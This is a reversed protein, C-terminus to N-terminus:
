RWISNRGQTIIGSFSHTLHGADVQLWPEADQQKLVGPGMLFIVM